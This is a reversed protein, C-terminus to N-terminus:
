WYQLVLATLDRGLIDTLCTTLQSYSREAREVEVRYSPKDFVALIGHLDIGLNILKVLMLRSNMSGVFLPSLEIQNIRSKFTFLTCVNRADMNCRVIINCDSISRHSLALEAEQLVTLMPIGPIFLALQLTTALWVDNNSFLKFCETIQQKTGVELLRNIFTSNRMVNSTRPLPAVKQIDILADIILPTILDVRTITSRDIFSIISLVSATIIKCKTEECSQFLKDCNYLPYSNEICGRFMRNALTVNNRARVALTVLEIVFDPQIVYKNSLKTYKANWEKPTSVSETESFLAIFQNRIEECDVERRKGDKLSHAPCIRTGIRLHKISRSM